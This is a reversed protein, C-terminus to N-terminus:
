YPIKHPFELGRLALRLESSERALLIMRETLWKPWRSWPPTVQNTYTTLVTQYGCAACAVSARISVPKTSTLEGFTTHVQGVVDETITVTIAVVEHKCKAM